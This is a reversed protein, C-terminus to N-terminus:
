GRLLELFQAVQMFEAERDSRNKHAWYDSGWLEEQWIEDLCCATWIAAADGQGEVIALTAVLSGSLHALKAMAALEFTGRTAVAAGLKGLSAAPQPQPMIGEVLTFSVDYRARAWDLWPDWEAAQRAALADEADARYCFADTQGYAAIRAAFETRDPAVHDIAANAFGTFPMTAPEIDKEVARWEAVVADTLTTTPLLLANRMPTKLPKGDLAIGFGWASQQTTVEKWFRRM